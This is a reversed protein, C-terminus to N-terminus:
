STVSILDSVGLKATPPSMPQPQAAREPVLTTVPTELRQRGGPPQVAPQRPRPALSSISCRANRVRAAIATWVIRRRLARPHAGACSYAPMTVPITSSARTMTTAPASGVPLLCAVWALAVGAAVPLWADRRRWIWSMSWSRILDAYRRGNCRAATANGTVGYFAWKSADSARWGAADHRPLAPAPLCVAWAKAPLFGPVRCSQRPWGPTETRACRPTRSIEDHSPSGARPRVKVAAAVRAM